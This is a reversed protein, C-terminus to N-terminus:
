AEYSSDIQKETIKELRKFQYAEEMVENVLDSDYNGSIFKKSDLVCLHFPINTDIGEV